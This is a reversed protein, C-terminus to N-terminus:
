QMVQGCKQKMGIDACLTERSQTIHTIRHNPHRKHGVSIVSVVICIHCLSMLGLVLCLRKTSCLLVQSRWGTGTRRVEMFRQTLKYGLKGVYVKM